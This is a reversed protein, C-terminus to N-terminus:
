LSYNYNFHVHIAISLTIKKEIKLKDNKTILKFERVAKWHAGGPSSSFSQWLPVFVCLFKIKKLSPAKTNTAIKMASSM